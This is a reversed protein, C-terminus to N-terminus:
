DGKVWKPIQKAYQWFLIICALGVFVLVAFITWESWTLPPLLEKEVIWKM